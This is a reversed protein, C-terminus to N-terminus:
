RHPRPPPPHSRRGPPSHSPSPPPAPPPAATPPPATAPDLSRKDVGGPFLAPPATALESPDLARAAASANIEEQHMLVAAGLVSLWTVAAVAGMIRGTRATPLADDDPARLHDDIM